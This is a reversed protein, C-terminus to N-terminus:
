WRDLKLLPMSFASENLYLDDLMEFSQEAEVVDYYSDM